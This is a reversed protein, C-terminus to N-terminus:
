RGPHKGELRDVYEVSGLRFRFPISTAKEWQWEKQCFFGLQRNYWLPSYGAIQLSGSFGAFPAFAAQQPILFQPHTVIKQVGFAPFRITPTCVSVGQKQALLLFPFILMGSVVVIKILRQRVTDSKTHLNRGSKQPDRDKKEFFKRQFFPM